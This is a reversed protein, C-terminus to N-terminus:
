KGNAVMEKGWGAVLCRMGEMNINKPPLCIRNLFNKGEIYPEDLVLLAVDNYLSAPNYDEHHIIEVVNREEETINSIIPLEVQGNM